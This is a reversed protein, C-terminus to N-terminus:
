YFDSRSVGRSEYEDYVGVSINDEYYTFLEKDTEHTIGLDSNKISFIDYNDIVIEYNDVDITLSDFIEGYERWEGGWDVTYNMTIICPENDLSFSTESEFENGKFDNRDHKIKDILEGFAYEFEKKIEQLTIGLKKECYDVISCRVVIGCGDELEVM